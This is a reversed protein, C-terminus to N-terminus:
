NNELLDFFVHYANKTHYDQNECISIERIFDDFLDDNLRNGNNRLQCHIIYEFERRNGFNFLKNPTKM